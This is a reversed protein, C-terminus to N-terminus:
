QGVAIWDDRTVVNRIGAMSSVAQRSYDRLRGGPPAMRVSAFLMGPLRVDSAFRLSGTSKAPGDLRALSQGVLRGKDGNRLAPRLPPSREAAEEALEGFTFTRGGNMVFGDGTECNGPSVGWRDAAAGVLM